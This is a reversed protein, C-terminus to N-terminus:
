SESHHNGQEAEAIARHIQAPERPRGLRLLLKVVQAQGSAAGASLAGWGDHTCHNVAHHAIQLLLSVVSIGLLHLFDIMLAVNGPSFISIFHYYPVYYSAGDAPHLCEHQLCCRVM